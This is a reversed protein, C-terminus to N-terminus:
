KWVGTASPGGKEEGKMQYDLYQWANRVCNEDTEQFAELDLCDESRRKEAGIRYCLRQVLTRFFRFSVPRVMLGGGQLLKTM